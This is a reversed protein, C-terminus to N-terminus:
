GRPDLADRLADGLLNFGLVTLSVALGPFIMLWTADPLFRRGRALMEGWDSVPPQVGLGLFSLGAIALIAFGIGLTAQVVVPGVVNPAVHLWVIRGDRAGLARAAQVYEEERAALVVSRVIRAYAPIDVIAIAIVANVLGPGLTGVVALALLLSPFALLVDMVRMLVADLSGRFYGAVLGVVTGVSLAALVPLLGTLLSLRAGHLVRSYLSRGFEDTGFPHEASPPQLRARLNQQNPPRDALLPALLAALVLMLVLGGGIWAGPHRRFRRMPPSRWWSTRVVALTADAM